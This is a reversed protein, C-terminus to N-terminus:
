IAAFPFEILRKVVASRCLGSSVVNRHWMLFHKEPNALFCCCIVCIWSFNRVRDMFQLRYHGKIEFSAMNEKKMLTSRSLKGTWAPFMHRESLGLPATQVKSSLSSSFACFMCIGCLFAGRLWFRVGFRTELLFLSLALRLYGKLKAVRSLWMACALTQSIILKSNLMLIM